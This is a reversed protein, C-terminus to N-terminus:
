AKRQLLIVLTGFGYRSNRLYRDGREQGFTSIGKSWKVSIGKKKEGRDVKSATDLRFIWWRALGDNFALVHKRPIGVPREIATRRYTTMTTCLLLDWSLEHQRQRSKQRTEAANMTIKAM